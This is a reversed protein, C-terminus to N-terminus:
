VVDGGDSRWGSLNMRAPSLRAPKLAPPMECLVIAGNVFNTRGKPSISPGKAGPVRVLLDFFWYM